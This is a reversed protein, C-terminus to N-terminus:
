NDTKLPKLLEWLELKSEHVEDESLFKLINNKDYERRQEMSLNRYEYDDKHSHISDWNRKNKKRFYVDVFYNATENRYTDLHIRVDVRYQTGDDRKFIKEHKM